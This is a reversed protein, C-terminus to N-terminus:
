TVCLKNNKINNLLDINYKQSLFVKLEILKPIYKLMLAESQIPGFDIHGVSADLLCHFKYIDYHHIQFYKRVLVLNKQTQYLDVSNEEDYVKYMFAECFNRLHPLIETSIEARNQTHIESFKGDIFNAIQILRKDIIKMKEGWKAHKKDFNINNFVFANM